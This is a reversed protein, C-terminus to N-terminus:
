LSYILYSRDIERNCIFFLQKTKDVFIECSVYFSILFDFWAPNSLLIWHRLLM